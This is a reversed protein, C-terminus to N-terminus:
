LRLKALGFSPVDILALFVSGRLNNTRFPSEFGRRNQGGSGLNQVAHFFLVRMSQARNSRVAMLHQFTVLQSSCGRLGHCRTPIAPLCLRKRKLKARRRSVVNLM